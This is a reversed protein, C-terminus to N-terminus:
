WCDTSESVRPFWGLTEEASRVILEDHDISLKLQLQPTDNFPSLWVTTLLGDGSASEFLATPSDDLGTCRGTSVLGYGAATLAETISGLDEQVTFGEPLEFSASASGNTDAERCTRFTLLSGCNADLPRSTRRESVPLDIAEIAPDLKHQAQDLAQGIEYHRTQRYWVM